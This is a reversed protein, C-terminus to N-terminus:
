GHVSCNERRRDAKALGQGGPRRVSRRARDAPWLGPHADPHRRQALDDELLVAGDPHPGCREQACCLGLAFPRRQEDPPTLVIDQWEPDFHRDYWAAYEDVVAQTAPHVTVDEVPGEGLVWVKRGDHLANRYEAGTRM